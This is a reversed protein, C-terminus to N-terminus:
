FRQPLLVGLADNAFVNPLHIRWMSALIELTASRDYRRSFNPSEYIKAFFALDLIIM